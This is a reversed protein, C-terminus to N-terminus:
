LLINQRGGWLEAIELAMSIDVDLDDFMSYGADEDTPDCTLEDDSYDQDYERDESRIMGVISDIYPGDVVFEVVDMGSNCYANMVESLIDEFKALDEADRELLEKIEEADLPHDFISGLPRPCVHFLGQAINFTVARLAQSVFSATRTQDHSFLRLFFSLLVKVERALCHRLRTWWQPDIEFAEFLGHFAASVGNRRGASCHCFTETASDAGFWRLYSPQTDVTIELVLDDIVQETSSNFPISYGLRGGFRHAMDVLVEAESPKSLHTSGGHSIAWNSLALERRFSAYDYMDVGGSGFLLSFLDRGDDRRLDRFDNDWLLNATVTDMRYDYLWEHRCNVRLGLPLQVERGELLDLARSSRGDLLKPGDLRHAQRIDQPLHLGAIEQLENRCRVLTSVQLNVWRDGQELDDNQRATDLLEIADRIPAGWQLLLKASEFLKMAFATDIIHYYGHDSDSWMLDLVGTQAGMKLLVDLGHPWSVALEM